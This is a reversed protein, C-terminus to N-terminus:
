SGRRRGQARARRPSRPEKAGEPAQAWGEAPKIPSLVVDFPADSMGNQSERENLIVHVAEGKSGSAEVVNFSDDTVNLDTIVCPVNTDTAAKRRYLVNETKPSAVLIFEAEVQAVGMNPAAPQTGDVVHLNPSDSTPPWSSGPWHFVLTKLGAEATVNWLQEARCLTSDLAYDNHGLDIPNPISFGTIGHTIPYAGTALTTWMPPTVTPHGGLMILDARASGREIFKKTNPMIGEAIYKNTLRPDMGDVGLVFLKEAKKVM